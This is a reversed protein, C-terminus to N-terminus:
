EAFLVTQGIQAKTRYLTGAPLEIISKTTQYQSGIRGPKLDPEMGVIRYQADLHLVDISYRMFFTHVSRCPHIHLCSGSPFAKTGLLGKLRTLFSGAARVEKALVQGNEEILLKLTISRRELSFIGVKASLLPQTHKIRAV